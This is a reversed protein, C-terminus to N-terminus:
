RDQRHQASINELGAIMDLSQRTTEISRMVGQSLDAIQLRCEGLM